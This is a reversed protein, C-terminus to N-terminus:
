RMVVPFGAFFEDAQRLSVFNGHSSFLIQPTPKYGGCIYQYEKVRDWVGFLNTVAAGELPSKGGVFYFGGRYFELYLSFQECHM